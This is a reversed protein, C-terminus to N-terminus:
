RDISVEEFRCLGFDDVYGKKGCWDEMKSSLELLYSSDHGREIGYHTMMRQIEEQSVAVLVKSM